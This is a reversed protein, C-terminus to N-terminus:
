FVCRFGIMVLDLSNNQCLFQGVMHFQVQRCINVQGKKKKKKSKNASPLISSVWLTEPFLPHDSKLTVAMSLLPFIFGQLIVCM